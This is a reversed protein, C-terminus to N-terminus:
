CRKFDTYANPLTGLLSFLELTYIM